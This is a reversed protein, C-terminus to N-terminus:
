GAAVFRALDDDAAARLVDLVPVGRSRALSAYAELRCEGYRKAIMACLDDPLRQDAPEETV